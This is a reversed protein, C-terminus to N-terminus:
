PAPPTPSSRFSAVRAKANDRINVYFLNYDFVHYSGVLTLMDSFGHRQLPPINVELLAGKCAAGTLQPIVATLPDRYPVAPLAGRNLNAPASGGLRWDLPNICLFDSGAVRQYRDGLWMFGRDERPRDDRSQKVTNWGIVCGSQVASRCLSLGHREIDLPVRGGVVYAAVLQRALARGIIREELLRLAHLSGQSHGAVIFPRGRNEHTLYYDFARLVDAYALEFPAQAQAEDAHDFVGITAQRYRPAYIRCCANFASAQYRLVGREIRIRTIGPEDYATNDIIPRLDTTPHIFFVDAQPEPPLKSDEIGPPVSDAGSPRGPWAAWSDPQAYDPAPPQGGFCPSGTACLGVLALWAFRQRPM